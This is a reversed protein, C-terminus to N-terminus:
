PRLAVRHAAVPIMARVKAVRAPDIRASVHGPGDSAKAVVHGWPDAVLTHGYTARQENGALHTGCQAAAVFYTETEIARARCLVEWHDKGTQLTFAAPLAIMQAGKQALAAFLYPFRIDYCIACGVTVGECEYTVVEDGPKFTESERYTQGDPATIDFMHMKRYRAVEAGQRDFVITTNALREEGPIKELISGAHIFIAHKKALAQLMAYAPGGPLVEAAALKDARTGGMHDFVEPLCVWDPKELAVAEEILAKAQALNAAKDAASNMQIASIKM